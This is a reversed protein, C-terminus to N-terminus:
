AANKRQQTSVPKGDEFKRGEFVDKLLHPADLRRFRKEAVLLLKWILATASEVRKFRKAATTRLRLAAFPSEVVNTTRLHKSHDEPFDYFAVMREWDDELVDVAKPYWPRYRRAFVERAKVAEARSPAYVVARLLDKAESQERQPLRDLVNRMKHNWCRQEGAEPWVQRVAGWIAANGDAMLLRPAEIGRAKLDRLVESWSEVSERYGARLALVEKTGDRMAGLVVLLAAKDRELGAKVYIGDAWVYVVERGELRRQSWEEFEATWGARLRRISSKSLPAGEGLLGRMALEFDGEALGHLYLEPLLAGLEKTRRAFLPLVRSEFREEVGRVRPRRLTITGSSMALRRALTLYDASIMGWGASLIYLRALGLHDALMKYTPHRYLQWAALFAYPNDGPDDNYEHVVTRWSKGRDSMDDPRAYVRGEGTPAADPDAVFLVKRGDLKRLCGADHQKRAACQIVAIM